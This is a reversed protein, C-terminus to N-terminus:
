RQQYVDRIAQIILEPQEKQIFHGSHEALRFQGHTSRRALDQQLERWIRDWATYQESTMQATRRIPKGRALVILPLETRWDLREGRKVFFGSQATEQTLGQTKPDLQHLRLAGEEHSSDVFVLGAVDGPFKTAFTRVYIGAISHGVLIFPGKEGSAKLLTHLDNVIEDVSQLKSAANDSKGSGARDYSCVRAFNSVAPQVKSWDKATRGGGAILVVTAAVGAEGDCDISLRRDGLSIMKPEGCAAISIALLGASILFTVRLMGIKLHM